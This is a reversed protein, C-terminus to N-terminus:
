REQINKGEETLKSIDVSPTFKVVTWVTFLGTETFSAASVM